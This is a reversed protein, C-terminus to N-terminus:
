KKRQLRQKDETAKQKWTAFEENDGMSIIALELANIALEKQNMAEYCRASFFHCLPDCPDSQTAMAYAILAAEYNRCFYESNGLGIWFTHNNPNIVSLISFAAAAEAYHQQEYLHKSAQYLSELTEDDIAFVEQLTKADVLLSLYNVPHEAIVSAIAAIQCLQEHTKEPFLGPEHADTDTLLDLIKLMGTEMRKGIPAFTNSVTKQVIEKEEPPILPFQVFQQEAALKALSAAVRELCEQLKDWLEEPGQHKM